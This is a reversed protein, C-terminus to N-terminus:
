SIAITFRLRPAPGSALIFYVTNIFFSVFNFMAM